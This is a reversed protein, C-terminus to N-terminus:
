YPKYRNSIQIKNLEEFRNIKFATVRNRLVKKPNIPPEFGKQSKKDIKM